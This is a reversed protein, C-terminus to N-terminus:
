LVIYTMKTSSFFKFSMCLEIPLNTTFLKDRNAVVTPLKKCILVITEGGGGLDLRCGEGRGNKM